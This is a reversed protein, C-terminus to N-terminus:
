EDSTARDSVRGGIARQVFFPRPREFRFFEPRLPLFLRFAASARTEDRWGNAYAPVVFYRTNWMDYARRPFYIVKEGVETGLWKAVVPGVATRYSSSFYWEYDSLEAVGTTHTYEIGFNIGYKPGITDREWAVVERERDPSTTVNWAAPNWTPMRHVRFPGPVPPNRDAEAKEIIQVVAPQVDFISQDVTMVYRSNAAALDLAMMILAAAGAVQPRKPALIILVL